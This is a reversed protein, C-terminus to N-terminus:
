PKRLDVSVRAPQKLTVLVKARREGFEPHRFVVDRTGVPVQVNGIPTEGLRQNDVWVEAWPVANISLSGAPPDIRVATRRGAQVSVSRSVRLGVADNVFELDHSGLPLMLTEAESTGIIRGRSYVNLPLPAVVSILGAAIPQPASAGAAGGPPLSAVAAPAAPAPGAAALTSPAECPPVIAAITSAPASPPSPVAAVGEIGLYRRAWLATPVAELLVLAALVAIMWQSRRGAAPQKEPPPPDTESEFGDLEPDPEYGAQTPVSEETTPDPRKLPLVSM